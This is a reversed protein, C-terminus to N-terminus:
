FLLKTTRRSAQENDFCRVVERLLDRREANTMTRKGSFTQGNVTSSTLEFGSDPDTLLALSLTAYEARIVAQAAADCKFQQYYSNAESVM